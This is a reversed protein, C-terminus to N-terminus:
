YGGGRLIRFVDEGYAGAANRALMAENRVLLPAGGAGRSRGGMTAGLIQSLLGAQTKSAAFFDDQHLSVVQRSSGGSGPGGQVGPTDDFSPPKQSAVAALQGAGTATAALIGPINFPPPASAAAKSAAAITNLAVEGYAIAQQAKWEKLIAKQAQKNGKEAAARKSEIDADLIASVAELTANAASVADDKAKALLAAKEAAADREAQRLLLLADLEAKLKKDAAAETAAVEKNVAEEWEAVAAKRARAGEEVTVAGNKEAKGIKDLKQTLKAFPDQAAEISLTLSLIADHESRLAAAAKEADKAARENVVHYREGVDVGQGQANALDRTAESAAYFAKVNEMAATTEAEIQKQNRDFEQGVERLGKKLDDLSDAGIIAKWAGFIENLTNMASELPIVGLEKVAVLGLTFDQLATTAAPGFRELLKAGAGDMVLKLQGLSAQWEDAAAAAGPASSIGFTDVETRFAALASTSSLIGSELLPGAGKGFAQTAATARDTADPLKAIATVLDGFVDEAPRLNGTADKAAVGLAKFAAAAGGAKGSAAEGLRKSFTNIVGNLDELKGGGATAAAGLSELFAPSLASRAAADSLADTQEALAQVGAALATVGALGGAFGSLLAEQAKEERRTAAEQQNIIKVLASKKAGLEASMKILKAEAETQAKLGAIVSDVNLKDIIENTITAM